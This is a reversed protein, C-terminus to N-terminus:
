TRLVNYYISPPTRTHHKMEPIKLITSRQNMQSCCWCQWVRRAWMVQPCQKTCHQYRIQYITILSPAIKEWISSINWGIKYFSFLQRDLKRNRREMDCPRPNFILVYKTWQSDLSSHIVMEMLPDLNLNDQIPGGSELVSVNSHDIIIVLNHWFRISFMHCKSATIHWRWTLLSFMSLYLSQFIKQIELVTWVIDMIVSMSCLISKLSGVYSSHILQVRMLVWHLSTKIEHM